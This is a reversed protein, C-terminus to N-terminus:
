WKLLKIAILYTLSSVIMSAVIGWGMDVVTLLVSWNPATALNTLDYTSYAALAFLGATLATRAFSHARVGPVIVLYTLAAAYFVYFLIAAVWVVHTSYFAGLHVRYFNNAIFGIWIFDLVMLLPLAIFTLLFTRRM